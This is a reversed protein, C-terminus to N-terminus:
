RPQPLHSLIFTDFNTDGIVEMGLTFLPLDIPLRELKVRDKETTILGKCGSDAAKNEIKKILQPTYPQHDKLAMFHQLEIKQNLLTKQFRSPNAIGCFGLLPKPLNELNIEQKTTCSIIQSPQYTLFFCPTNLSSIRNVEKFNHFQDHTDPTSNTIILANARSLASFPERLYGGPFVKLRKELSEANFLVLDVNRKVALHQYADDLLLVDANMENQAYRCPFVRKRGTLVSISPLMEALLRPEDGAEEASLHVKFTDSVINVRADASGGYGRSVIVPSFGNNKLLRALYHIIPTKGSGGMTLNGVSIVPVQMSHSKFVGKLYLFARARMMASYIPSLPSGLIYLIETSVSM